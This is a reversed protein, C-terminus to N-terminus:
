SVSKRRRGLVMVGATGAMLLLGTTPEPVLTNAAFAIADDFASLNTGKLLPVYVIESDLFGEMSMIQGMLYIGDPAEATPDSENGVVNYAIHFHGGRGGNADSTDYSEGATNELTIAVESGDLVAMDGRGSRHITLTTASAPHHFDPTGNGDWFLLNGSDHLESHSLVPIIMDLDTNAALTDYGTPFPTTLEPDLPYRIFASPAGASYVDSGSVASFDGSAVRDPSHAGGHATFTEIKGNGGIKTAPLYSHQAQVMATATLVTVGSILCSSLFKM